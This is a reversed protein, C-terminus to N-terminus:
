ALRGQLHQAVLLLEIEEVPGLKLLRNVEAVQGLCYERTVEIRQQAADDGLDFRPMCREDEHVGETGQHERFPDFARWRAVLPLENRSVAASFAM